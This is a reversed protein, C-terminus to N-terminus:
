RPVVQWLLGLMKDLDMPKPLLHTFPLKKVAARLTEDVFATMLIIPCTLGAARAEQIVDLGTLGPMRMDTVIVDPQVRKSVKRNSLELVDSLEFGDELDFVQYGEAKLIKTLMDRLDDDDEALFVRPRPAALQGAASINM